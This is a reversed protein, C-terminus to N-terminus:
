RGNTKEKFNEETFLKNEIGCKLYILRHYCDFRDSIYMLENEYGEYWKLAPPDTKKFYEFEDKLWYELLKDVEKGCKNLKSFDKKYLLDNIAQEIVYRAKVPRM